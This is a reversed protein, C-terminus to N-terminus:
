RGNRRTHKAQGPDFGSGVARGPKTDGGTHTAYDSDVWPFRFGTDANRLDNEYLADLQHAAGDTSSWSDTLTAVRAGHDVVIPRKATVGTKVFQPCSVATAPFTSTPCKVIDEADDIALDGTGPDRTAKYSLPPLGPNDEFLIDATFSTYANAGDIQLESRTSTADTFNDRYYLYGNCYFLPNFPVDSASDYVFSDDLGCGGLSAFDMDGTRGTAAIAAFFDYPIGANDSAAGVRSPAALESKYVRPGTFPALAAGTPTTGPPCPAFAASGIRCLTPM